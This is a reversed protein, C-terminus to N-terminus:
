PSWFFPFMFWTSFLQKNHIRKGGVIEKYLGFECMRPKIKCYDKTTNQTFTGVPLKVKLTMGYM